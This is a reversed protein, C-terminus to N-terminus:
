SYTVLLQISILCAIACWISGYGGKFYLFVSFIIALDILTFSNFNPYLILFAFVLLEILTIESNGWVPSSLKNCSSSLSYGNFKYFIYIIATINLIDIIRNTNHNRIYSNFLIQVSLIIPIVYSTVVYNIRNPKMKIYWLIADAFQISSFILLFYVKMRQKKTLNKYKLLYFGVTWCFLGTGMSVELSFCM